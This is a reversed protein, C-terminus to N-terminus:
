CLEIERKNVDYIKHVRGIKHEDLLVFIDFIDFFPPTVGEISAFHATAIVKVGALVARKLPQLDLHTLEDTVIVDPRMARIGTEFAREKSAYAIVDCTEGISHTAIEGRDDCLLINKRTKESLIRALDRLITTKGLGPPSMLLLNCVVDSMCRNYIEEGCGIVDHPVRICLSNFNRITFPQGREFVYEGGLGIREGHLATIFGQKVQEEVAYMSYNGARYVCDAIENYDCCFGDEKRNTIGYASLYRYMGEYNLTIPQNARIRIEYVKQLNVRKLANNIKQPLFELM